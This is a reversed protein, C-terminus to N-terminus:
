SSGNVPAFMYRMCHQLDVRWRGRCWPRAPACSRTRGAPLKHTFSIRPISSRPFVICPFPRHMITVWGRVSVRIRFVFMVQSCFIPQLVDLQGHRPISFTWIFCVVAGYHWQTDSFRFVLGLGLGYVTIIVSNETSKSACRRRQMKYPGSPCYLGAFISYKRNPIWHNFISM